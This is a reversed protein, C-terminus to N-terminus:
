DPKLNSVDDVEPEITLDSAKLDNRRPLAIETFFEPTVM